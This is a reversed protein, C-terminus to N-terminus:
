DKNSHTFKQLTAACPSCLVLVIPRPTGSSPAWTDIFFNEMSGEDAANPCLVNSCKRIPSTSVANVM